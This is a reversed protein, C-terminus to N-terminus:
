GLHYRTGIRMLEEQMDWDPNEEKSYLLWLHGNPDIAQIIKDKNDALVGDKWKYEVERWSDNSKVFLDEFQFGAFVECEEKPFSYGYLSHICSVFHKKDMDKYQIPEEYENRFDPYISELLATIVSKNDSKLVFLESSSNTIIDIVNDINLSFLVKKTTNM